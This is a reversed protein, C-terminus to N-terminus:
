ALSFPYHMISIKKIIQNYAISKNKHEKFRWHMQSVKEGDNIQFNHLQGMLLDRKRICSNSTGEHEHVKDLLDKANSFPDVKATRPFTLM